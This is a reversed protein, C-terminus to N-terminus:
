EQNPDSADHPMQWRNAGYLDADWPSDDPDDGKPIGIWSETRMWTHDQQEDCDDQVKLWQHSSIVASVGDPALTTGAAPSPPTDIYSLKEFVGAPPAYYSRRRTLQAYFRIVREVGKMLKRVLPVTNKLLPEENMDVVGGDAERYKFESALKADPERMWREVAARNPGSPSASCYALVSVDNRVSKLSYVERFPTTSTGSQSTTTPDTRRCHVTLVGYDANVRRLGWGAVKWDTGPDGSPMADGPAISDAAGELDDYPAKWAFSASRAGEADMALADDPQRTASSPITVAM